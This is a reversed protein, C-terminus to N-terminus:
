LVTQLRGRDEGVSSPGPRFWLFVPLDGCDPRLGTGDYGSNQLPGLSISPSNQEIETLTWYLIM